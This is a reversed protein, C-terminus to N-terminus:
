TTISPIYKRTHVRDKTDTTIETDLPPTSTYSYEIKLRPTSHPPHDVGHGPRKVGPFSGTVVTYSAPHAWRGTQVPASYRAEVPIRDGLKIYRDRGRRKGCEWSLAFQTTFHPMPRRECVDTALPTYPSHLLKTTQWHWWPENLLLWKM